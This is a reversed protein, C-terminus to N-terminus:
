RNKLKELIDSAFKEKEEATMKDIKELAAKEEIDLSNLKQSLTASKVDLYDLRARILSYKHEFDEKMRSWEAQKAENAALIKERGKGGGFLKAEVAGWITALGGIIAAPASKDIALWGLFGLVALAVIGIFIMKTTSMTM